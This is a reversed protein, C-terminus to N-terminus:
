VFCLHVASHSQSWDPVPDRPSSGALSQGLVCEDQSEDGHERDDAIVNMPPDILVM